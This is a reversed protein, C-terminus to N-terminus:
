PSRCRRPRSGSARLAAASGGLRALGADVCANRQLDIAEQNADVGGIGLVALVASAVARASRSRMADIAINALDESTDRDFYQALGDARRITLPYPDIVLGYYWRLTHADVPLRGRLRHTGLEIIDGGRAM